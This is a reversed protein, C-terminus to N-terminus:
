EDSPSRAPLLSDRWWHTYALCAASAILMAPIAFGWHVSVSYLVVAAVAGLVVAAIRAVALPDARRDAVLDSVLGTFTSTMYTTPSRRDVILVAAAQVGMGLAAAALLVFRIAGVSDAFVTIAAVVVVLVAEGAFCHRLRAIRRVGPPMARCWRAAAAVGVLYVVLVVLPPTLEIGSMGVATGLLVLNGTLVSAFVKGLETFVLADTAGSGASLLVLVTPGVPLWRPPEHKMPM